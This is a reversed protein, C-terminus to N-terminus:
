QSVWETLDFVGTRQKVVVGNDKLVFSPISRINYDRMVSGNVEDDIDIHTVMVGPLEPYKKKMQQCPGCWHATFWHLQKM